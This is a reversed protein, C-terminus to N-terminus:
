FEEMETFVVGDGTAIGAYLVDTNRGIEAYHKVVYQASFPMEPPNKLLKEIHFWELNGENSVIEKQGDKLDAFFYYNQRLEGNKLRVTVYRLTLNAIDHETLGTEEYLERLVCARADNLEEKEFHGGASATYSDSVVKSGIRYLLLMRDGQQLYLGAMNRLKGDMVKEQGKHMGTQMKKRM